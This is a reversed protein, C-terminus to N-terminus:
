FFIALPWFFHSGTFFFILSGNWSFRSLFSVSTSFFFISSFVSSTQGFQPFGIIILGPLNPFNIAQEPKGSHLVALGILFGALSIPIFHGLHASNEGSSM